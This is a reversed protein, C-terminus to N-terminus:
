SCASFTYLINNASPQRGGYAKLVSTTLGNLDGALIAVLRNNKHVNANAHEHMSLLCCYDVLTSDGEPILKMRSLLYAFEGSTGVASIVCSVYWGSAEPL